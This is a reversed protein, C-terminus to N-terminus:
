WLRSQIVGQQISCRTRPAEPLVAIKFHADLTMNETAVDAAKRHVLQHRCQQQTGQLSAHYSVGMTRSSESGCEGTQLTQTAMFLQHPFPSSLSLWFVHSTRLFIYNAEIWFLSLSWLSPREVWSSDAQTYSCTAPSGLLGAIQLSNTQHQIIKYLSLNFHVVASIENMNYSLLVNKSPFSTPHHEDWSIVPIM